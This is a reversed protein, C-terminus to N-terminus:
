KVTTVSNNKQVQFKKDAINALTENHTIMITQRGFSSGMDKIFEGFAISSDLDVMKGPEDIMLGGQIKPNSFLDMYIYRLSASVIDVFGGGCADEPKQESIEGNIEELIYFEASPKGRLESIKISFQYDKGSVFQLAATVAKEIEVKVGDRAKLAVEQLLLNIQKNIMITEETEQIEEQKNKISDEISKKAGLDSNYINLEEQYVETLEDLLEKYDNM